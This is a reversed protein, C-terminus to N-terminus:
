GRSLGPGTDPSEKEAEDELRIAESLQDRLKVTFDYDAVQRDLEVMFELIADQSVVQSTIVEVLEFLEIRMDMTVEIENFSMM